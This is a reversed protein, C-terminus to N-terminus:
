AGTFRRIDPAPLPRSLAYGQGYECGHARVWEAVAETEIGEAVVRRRLAHALDIIRATLDAVEPDHLGILFSRDVKVKDFPLERLQRLNAYGSGFDDLSLSIGAAKLTDVTKRALPMDDPLASETIELCLRTPPLGAEAIISLTKEATEPDSLQLPSLNVAVWVEPPWGAAETAAHRLVAEYVVAILGADEALNIFDLPSVIGHGPRQWRALAEAGATRGTRLDIIPQFYAIVEGRRLGARLDAEMARSERNVHELQDDFVAYTNRGAARAALMAAEARPLLQDVLTGDVPAISIGISATASGTPVDKTGTTAAATLLRRALRLIGSRGSLPPTIVAFQDSALRAAIGDPGVVDSLRTAFHQLFRDGAAQGYHDNLSKFRDIDIMLIGFCSGAPGAALHADGDDRFGARNLLGTLGDFKRLSAIHREADHRHREAKRLDRNRVILVAILAFSLVSFATFLEDLEWDEHARTYAYLRDFADIMVLLAQLGIACVAILVFVPRM